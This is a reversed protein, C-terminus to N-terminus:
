PSSAVVQRLLDRDRRAVPGPMLVYDHLAGDRQHVAAGTAAAFDRADPWLIDRTGAFITVPPLADVSGRIPSAFPHNVGLAGAYVRGAHGLGARTFLPDRSEIAAIDPNTLSVDLWPSVLVLRTPVSRGTALLHQTAAVALGGGASDGVVTVAGGIADIVDAIAPVTTAATSAPALPYHVVHVRAPVRRALFAALAWHPKSAELVYAGGHLYVVTDLPEAVTPPTLTVVRTGAVVTDEVRLGRVARRPAVVSARAPRAIIREVTAVRRFGTRESVAKVIAPVVVDDVVNM